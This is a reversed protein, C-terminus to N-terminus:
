TRQKARPSAGAVMCIEKAIDLTLIYEQTPRGGELNNEKFSLFRM